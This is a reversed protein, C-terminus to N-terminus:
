SVAYATEQFLGSGKLGLASLVTHSLRRAAVAASTDGRFQAYVLPHTMAGLIAAAAAAGVPADLREALGAMQARRAQEYRDVVAGIEADLAALALVRRISPAITEWARSTERLTAKLAARPNDIGTAAIVRDYRILRGQDSFAATLLAHRSGFQNYVTARTVGAKRAVEDLTLTGADPAALLAHVADLIATRTQRTTERRRRM